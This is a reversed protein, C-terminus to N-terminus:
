SNLAEALRAAWVDPPCPQGPLYLHVVHVDQSATLMDFAGTFGNQEAIEVIRRVDELAFPERFPRHSVQVESPMYPTDALTLYFGAKIRAAKIAAQLNAAATAHDTMIM